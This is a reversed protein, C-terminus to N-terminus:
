NYTWWWYEIFNETAIEACYTENKQILVTFSSTNRIRLHENRQYSTQERKCYCIWCTAKNYPVAVARFLSAADWSKAFVASKWQWLKELPVVACMKRRRISIPSRHYRTWSSQYSFKCEFLWPSASKWYVHCPLQRAWSVLDLTHQSNCAVVVDCVLKYLAMAGRRLMFPLKWHTCMKRPKLHTIFLKFTRSHRSIWVEM